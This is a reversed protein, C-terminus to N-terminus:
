PETTQTASVTVPASAHGDIDEVVFTFAYTAVNVCEVSIDQGERWSGLCDGDNCALAVEGLDVEGATAALTGFTAITSQGQPDTASALASWQYYRDGTEHLYCSVSASQIVPADPDVEAVTGTDGTDPSATPCGLLLLIM